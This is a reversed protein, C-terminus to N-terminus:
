DHILEEIEIEKALELAQNLNYAEKEFIHLSACAMSIALCEKVSLGKTKGYLFGAVMHDGAGYLKLPKRLIPKVHYTNKQDFYIAGDIGLSVLVAKTGLNIMTQCAQIVDKQHTLDHGVFDKLEDLNPKILSPHYKLLTQYEIGSIDFILNLHLHEYRKLIMDYLHNKYKPQSGSLVLTDGDKLQDLIRMLDHVEQESIEPSIGSIETHREDEILKLNIRTNGKIVVLEYDFHNAELANIIFDGTFGGVFGINKSTIMLNNLGKSVNIGKGGPYLVQNTTRNLFGLNLQNIRIEYDIAPNFTVTYIM